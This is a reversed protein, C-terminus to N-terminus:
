TPRVSPYFTLELYIEGAPSDRNKIMFWGDYQHNELVPDLLIETQGIHSDHVPNKDICKVLLERENNLDFKVAQGWTPKQGGNNDTHTRQNEDGLKFELYPDQKGIRQVVTLDRGGCARVVLLGSIDKLM